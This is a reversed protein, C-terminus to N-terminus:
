SSMTGIKVVPLSVGSDFIAWPVAGFVTPKTSPGSELFNAGAGVWHIVSMGVM